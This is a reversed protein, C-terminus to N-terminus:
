AGHRIEPQRLEGSDEQPPRRRGRICSRSRCFNSQSNLHFRFLTNSVAINPATGEGMVLLLSNHCPLSQTHMEHAVDQKVAHCGERQPFRLASSGVFETIDTKETRNRRNPMKSLCLWQPCSTSALSPSSSLDRRGESNREKQTAMLRATCM